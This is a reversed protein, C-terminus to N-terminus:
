FFVTQLLCYLDPKYDVFGAKLFLFIQKEQSRVSLIAMLHELSLFAFIFNTEPLYSLKRIM